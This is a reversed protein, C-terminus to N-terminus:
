TICLNQPKIFDVPAYEILIVVRKNVNTGSLQNSCPKILTFKSDSEITKQLLNSVSRQEKM